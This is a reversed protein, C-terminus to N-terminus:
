PTPAAGTVTMTITQGSSAGTATLDWVKDIEASGCQWRIPLNGSEDARGQRIATAQPSSFDVFERPLFNSITAFTRSSGDCAFPNESFTVALETISGEPPAAGSFTLTTSRGSEVGVATLTWTKGADDTRCQWRIPLEGVGDARGDILGDAQDSSFDVVEFPVFNSLLAFRRTEGNCVFPEEEMVVGVETEPGPIPARGIVTFRGTRQSQNGTATVDWTMGIQDQGCIWFLEAEGLEDATAAAIGDGVSAQFEIIERPEAASIKGIPRRVGDCTFASEPVDIRLATDLRPDVATGRLVFEVRRGSDHGVAVLDWRLRAESPDCTWNLRYRGQDDAAGDDLSIPAPSSLLIREGPEAGSIEAAQHPLGDCFVEGDILAVDLPAPEATVVPEAADPADAQGDQQDDTRGTCAGLVLCLAVATVAM